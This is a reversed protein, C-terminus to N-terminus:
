DRVDLSAYKGIGPTFRDMHEGIGVGQVLLEIGWRQHGNLYFDIEGAIREADLDANRPFIKSLEPCICCDPTTFSALGGMFLHQFVAEKPFDGAKTSNQLTNASISAIVNKILEPLSSPAIPSRNPFIWKFYYRKALQSSFGFTDDPFQVLIGAKELSSFSKKDDQNLSSPSQNRGDVLCRKLFHKFDNGIPLSHNSGFCRAMREIFPKSMCHQLLRTESPAVDKMFSENLSDVALRLAAILGGAEKVLVTKLNALSRMKEPLGIDSLELFEFAEEDALLFDLRSLRPLSKFEAPSEKGGNLSHTASIVIRINNSLLPIIGKFLRGWFVLDDYKVQADDLFFVVKKQPIKKVFNGTDLDIGKEQLIELLSKEQICSIAIVFIKKSVVQKFLKCLSSKGSGAPSTLLV